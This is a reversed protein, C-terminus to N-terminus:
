YLWEIFETLKSRDTLRDNCWESDQCIYNGRKIFTGDSSAKEPEYIARRGFYSSLNYM